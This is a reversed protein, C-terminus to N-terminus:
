QACAARWLRATLRRVAMLVRLQKPRLAISGAPNKRAHTVPPTSSMIKVPTAHREGKGVEQTTGFGISNM